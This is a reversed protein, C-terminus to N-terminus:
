ELASLSIKLSHIGKKEAEIAAATAAANGKPYWISKVPGSSVLAKVTATSVNHCMSVDSMTSSATSTTDM